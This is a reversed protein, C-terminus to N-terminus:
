AAVGKKRKFMAQLYAPPAIGTVVVLALFLFGGMVMALPWFLGLRAMGIMAAVSAATVLVTKVLAVLLPPRLGSRAVAVLLGLCLTTETLATGIAAGLYSYIPILTFYAILAVALGICDMLFAQRQLDMATLIHRYVQAVANSAIALGVLTLAPAAPAFEAGAVVTLVEAPFAAFVAIVGGGFVLMATLAHGATVEASSLDKQALSTVLMPMLMGNFLVALTVLIEFMKSPVGYLGVAMDTALLSLLLIDGRLITSLIVRSGAIPLGIKVMERWIELDVALRFPQLRRALPWAVILQVIGGGLMAAVMPVVGADAQLALWVLGLMVLGGVTESIAQLGQRLHRQFVTQLVMAAQFTVYYPAAVMIGRVIEHEYPMLLSLLAGTGLVLSSILLRLLLAAGMLRGHDRGPRGLERLVVLQLGLDSGISVFSTFTLITRYAGYGDPGLARTILAISVLGIVVAIVKGAVIAAMNFTLARVTSRHDPAAAAPPAPDPSATAIPDAL